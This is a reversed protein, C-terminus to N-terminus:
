FIFLCTGAKRKQIFDDALLFQVVFIYKEDYEFQYTKVDFHLIAGTFPAYVKNQLCAFENIYHFKFWVARCFFSQLLFIVLM